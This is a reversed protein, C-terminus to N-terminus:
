PWLTRQIGVDCTTCDTRKTVSLSPANIRGGGGCDGDNHPLIVRIPNVKSHQTEETYTSVDWFFLRRRSVYIDMYNDKRSNCGLYAVRSNLFKETITQNSQLNMNMRIHTRELSEGHEEWHACFEKDKRM